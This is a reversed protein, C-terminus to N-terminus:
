VVDILSEVTISRAQAVESLIDHLTGVKLPIMGQSRSQTPLLDRTGCDCTAEKRAFQRM